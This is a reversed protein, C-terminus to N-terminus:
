NEFEAFLRLFKDKEVKLLEDFNPKSPKEKKLNSKKESSIKNNDKKAAM